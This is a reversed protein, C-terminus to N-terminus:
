SNVHSRSRCGPQQLHPWWSPRSAGTAELVVLGPNVAKLRGVLAELGATNREVVFREGSPRVAVDLRVKGVNIGVTIKDM